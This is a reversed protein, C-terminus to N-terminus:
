KTRNHPCNLMKSNMEQMASTNESVVDMMKNFAAESHQFHNNITKNMLKWAWGMFIILAICVGALGGQTLIQIIDAEM